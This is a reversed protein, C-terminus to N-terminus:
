VNIIFKFYDYLLESVKNWSLENEIYNVMSNYTHISKTSKFKQENNLLAEVLNNISINNQCMGDSDINISSDVYTIYDSGGNEYIAEIYEKTSGTKPVLVNLGCALSEHCTLNYGECLYPSIYLDSANFLDNIRKYSLTKDTFIIYNSLLNDIELQTMKGSQKFQEFYSELFHQCMYLDGSGKLMLKYNSKHMKNVLIHLSELILLIGKNTTMAGINIMLIDTDKINYLNRINQRQTTDKKFIKTDVGHTIVRNRKQDEIYRLMGKSSWISPSTFYINDFEKLFLTIYDDYKSKDLSEPKEFKFYNHNLQAFESTYFICKPVHKNESTVNINYQYTQRYILDISENNYTKFSELIKNYEDSYVLKKNRLNNWAPNYYDMESVYFDIRHGLLGNPGYNKWLHILQFSFVSAYSHNIKWWGEFLIKLIPIKKTILIEKEM